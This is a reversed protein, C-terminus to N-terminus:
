ARNGTSLKNKTSGDRRNLAALTLFCECQGPDRRARASRRTGVPRECPEVIAARAPRDGDREKSAACATAGIGPEHAFWSVASPRASTPLEATSAHLYMSPCIYFLTNRLDDNQCAGSSPSLDLCGKKPLKLDGYRRISFVVVPQVVQQPWCAM